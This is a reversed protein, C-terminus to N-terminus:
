VYDDFTTPRYNDMYMFLYRHHSVEVNILETLALVEELDQVSLATCALERDGEVVAQMARAIEYESNLERENKNQLFYTGTGQLFLLGHKECIPKLYADSVQEGIAAISKDFTNLAAEVKSKCEDIKM